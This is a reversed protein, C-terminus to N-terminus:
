ILSDQKSVSLEEPPKRSRRGRRSSGKGTKIIPEKNKWADDIIGYDLSYELLDGLRLYPYDAREEDEDFIIHRAPEPEAGKLV